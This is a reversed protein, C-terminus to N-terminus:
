EFIADVEKYGTPTFKTNVKMWSMKAEKLKPVGFAIEFVKWNITKNGDKDLKTSLNLKNSAREAFYALLQKTNDEWKYGCGDPTILLNEIAKNFLSKAEDISLEKPLAKLQQPKPQREINLSNKYGEIETIFSEIHVISEQKEKENCNAGGEHESISNRVEILFTKLKNIDENTINDYLPNKIEQRIKKTIKIVDYKYGLKFGGTGFGWNTLKDIEKYEM